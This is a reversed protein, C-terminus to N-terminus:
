VLQELETHIVQIFSSPDRDMDWIEQLKKQLSIDIVQGSTIHILNPCGGNIVNDLIYSICRPDFDSKPEQGEVFIINIDPKIKPIVHQKVWTYKNSRDSYCFFVTGEHADLFTRYRQKFQNKDIWSAIVAGIFLPFLVPLALIVLFILLCFLLSREVPKAM